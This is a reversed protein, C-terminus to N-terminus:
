LLQLEAGGPAAPQPPRTSRRIVAASPLSSFSDTASRQTEMVQLLIEIPEQGYGGENGLHHLYCAEDTLLVGGM